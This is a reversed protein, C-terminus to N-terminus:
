NTNIIYVNTRKSPTNVPITYLSLMKKTVSWSTPHPKKKQTKYFYNINDNLQYLIFHKTDSIQIVTCKEIVHLTVPHRLDNFYLLKPLNNKLKQFWQYFFTLYALRCGITHQYIPRFM